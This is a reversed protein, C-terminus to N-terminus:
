RPTPGLARTALAARLADEVSGRRVALNDIGCAGCRSMPLELMVTFVPADPLQVTVPKVTRRAPMALDEGCASCSARTSWWRRSPVVLMGIVDAVVENPFGRWLDVNVHGNPCARLPAEEMLAGVQGRSAEAVCTSLVFDEGCVACATTAPKL